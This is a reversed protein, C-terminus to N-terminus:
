FKRWKGAEPRIVLRGYGTEECHMFRSIVETAEPQDGTYVAVYMTLRDIDVTADKRPFGRICLAIM